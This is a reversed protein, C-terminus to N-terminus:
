RIPLFDTRQLLLECRQKMLLYLKCGTFCLPEDEEHGIIRAWCRGIQMAQQEPSADQQEELCIKYMTYCRYQFSNTYFHPLRISITDNMQALILKLLIPDLVSQQVCTEAVFLYLMRALATQQENLVMLEDPEFSLIASGLDCGLQRARELNGCNKHLFYSHIEEESPELSSHASPKKGLSPLVKMDEDGRDLLLLRDPLAPACSPSKRRVLLLAGLLLGWFLPLLHHCSTM